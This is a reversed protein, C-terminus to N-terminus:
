DVRNNEDRLEVMRLAVTVFESALGARACHDRWLRTNPRDM